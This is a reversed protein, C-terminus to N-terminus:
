LVDQYRFAPDIQTTLDAGYFSNAWSECNRRHFHLTHEYLTDWDRKKGDLAGKISSLAKINITELENFSLSTGKDITCVYESFWLSCLYSERLHEKLFEEDSKTRVKNGVACIEINLPRAYERYQEFVSVSRTTPEVILVSLDFKTFLGSAFSDAGATMDVVVYEGERDLLHNLLLEVAGTKAHYCSVGIDLDSFGGVRMFAIGATDISFYKWVPSPYCPRLFSSNKTPPSTKVIPLASTNEGRLFEKLIDVENGLEPLKLVSDESLGLAEGLHQNIDADIAIVPAGKSALFKCFLSSGTTKGSGGKGLFAIRMTATIKSILVQRM